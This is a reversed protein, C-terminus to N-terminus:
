SIVIDDDTVRLTFQKATSNGSARAIGSLTSITLPKATTDNGLEPSNEVGLCYLNIRCTVPLQHQIHQGADTLPIVASKELPQRRHLTSRSNLDWSSLLVLPGHSQTFTSISTFVHSLLNPSRTPPRNSDGPRLQEHVYRDPWYFASISDVALVGLDEEPLETALYMPLHQITAALQHSSSPQFVHLLGLAKTVIADNDPHDPPLLCRLRSRLLQAFRLANFKHDTDLLIAVKGWGGLKSQSHLSPLVCNILMCYLLHSKGSAAPGQVEILDGRKCSNHDLLIDLAPVRTPWDRLLSTSLQSLSQAPIDSFLPM